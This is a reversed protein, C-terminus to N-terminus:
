KVPISFEVQDPPLCKEDNCTMYEVTGKVTAEGKLLKIKQQFVVADEFYGVQMNFSKEFKTIPKPEITKGTLAYEKSPSFTFTTKVPGGDAVYQSYVHWGKDVTAKIFVMATTSNLKKAAYSFKVPALIQAQLASVAMLLCLTIALKKM